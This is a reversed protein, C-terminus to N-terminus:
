FFPNVNGPTGGTGEYHINTFLTNGHIILSAEYDLYIFYAESGSFKVNQFTFDGFVEMGVEELELFYCESGTATSDTVVYNGYM